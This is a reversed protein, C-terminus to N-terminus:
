IKYAEITQRVQYERDRNIEEHTRVIEEQTEKAQITNIKIRYLKNTFDANFIFTDTEEVDKGKPEKTLVRTGIVGCALSQLTRKLEMSEIGTKERNLVNISM